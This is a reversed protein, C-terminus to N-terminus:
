DRLRFSGLDTVANDTISFGLASGGTLSISQDAGVYWGETFTQASSHCDLHFDIRENYQADVPEVSLTYGPGSPVGSIIFTGDGLVSSHTSYHVSDGAVADDVTVLAGIMPRGAPTLVRGRVTGVGALGTSSPLASAETPLSIGYGYCFDTLKRYSDYAVSLVLLNWLTQEEKQKKEKERGYPDFGGCFVGSLTLAGLLM